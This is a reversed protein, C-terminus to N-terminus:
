VVRARVIVQALLGRRAPEIRRTQHERVAEREVPVERALAEGVEEEVGQRVIGVGGHAVCQPRSQWHEATAACGERTADGGAQEIRRAQGLQYGAAQLFIFLHRQFEGRISRQEPGNTALKRLVPQAARQEVGVAEAAV